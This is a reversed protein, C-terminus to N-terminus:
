IHKTYTFAISNALLSYGYTQWHHLIYKLTLNDGNDFSRLERLNDYVQFFAKDCLLALIPEGGFSDVKLTKAQIQSKDINFAYSLVEVDINSSMQSDLLLIQDELPTWVVPPKDVDGTVLTTYKNYNSSPFTLLNSYTKIAKVLKKSIVTDDNDTANEDFINVATIHGASFAKAVVNKMLIFEDMNDGSYLSSIIGDIFSTMAYESTFAKQIMPRTITVPYKDQRNVRYFLAKVDPIANALLDTSTMDYTKAKAPNTYIEEIDSGLPVGGKKLVALPNNLIKNHVITLGIRNVIANAFENALESYQGIVQGITTLNTNTASPVRNQYDLSANARITDLITNISYPM